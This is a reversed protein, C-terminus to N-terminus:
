MGNMAPTPPANNDNNNSNNFAASLAPYNRHHKRANKLERELDDNGEIKNDDEDVEDEKNLGKNKAPPSLLGV